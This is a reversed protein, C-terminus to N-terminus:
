TRELGVLQLYHACARSWTFDQRVTQEFRRAMELSLEPQDLAEQIALALAAVDGPPVLRGTRGDSLMEPIGGVRSAIVPLGFSGAELLVIGFSEERSPLVFLAARRYFEGLRHHPLDVHFSVRSECGLERALRTLGELGGARAGILCLRLEPRSPTLAAFASLLVDQGKVADFRGISLIVPEPSPRAPAPDPPFADADLGNAIVEPAQALGLSLQCRRALDRSPAVVAACADLLRRMAAQQQPDAQASRSVDTGHISVILRPAPALGALAPALAFASDSFYHCNVVLIRQEACLAAFDAQFRACLRRDRWAALGRRGPAPARLRWRLTDVGEFNGWVPRPESWDNMLILPRLRGDRRVQRALNLVVQNVGGVHELSWPLVFLYTPQM